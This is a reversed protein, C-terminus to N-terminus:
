LFLDTLIFYLGIFCFQNPPICKAISMFYIMINEIFLEFMFRFIIIFLFTIIM